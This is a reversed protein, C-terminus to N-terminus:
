DDSGFAISSLEFCENQCDWEWASAWENIGGSGHSDSCRALAPDSALGMGTDFGTDFGDHHLTLLAVVAV